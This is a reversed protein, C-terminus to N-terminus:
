KRVRWNTWRQPDPRYVTVLKAIHKIRDYSWVSHIPDGFTNFGLILCSPTPYANPYEEIIEGSDIVSFYVEEIRLDDNAAERLSHKSPQVNRSQIAEVIDELEM